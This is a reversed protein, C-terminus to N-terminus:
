FGLKSLGDLLLDRDVQRRLPVMGTIWGVAEKPGCKHRGVWSKSILKAVTEIDSRAESLRGLQSLVLSRWFLRRHPMRQEGVELWSMAREYEGKFYYLEAYDCRQYDLDHLMLARTQNYLDEGDDLRGLYVLATGTANLRHAEYVGISLATEIFREAADWNRRWIQCWAMAIHPNAHQSNIKLLREALELARERQPAMSLGPQTFFTGTNYSQILHIYAPEFTPDKKIAKELEGQLMGMSTMADSAAQHFRNKARLYHDYPSLEEAESLELRQVEAREIAPLVSSMCRDSFSAIQAFMGDGEFVERMSWCVLNTYVQTLQLSCLIQDSRGVVQCRLFYDKGQQKVEADNRPPPLSMVNVEPFHALRACCEEVLTELFVRQNGDDDRFSAFVAVIPIGRSRASVAAVGPRKRNPKTIEDFLDHTAQSVEFDDAKLARQLREFEQRAASIRDLDCLARMLSRSAPENFPDLKVVVSAKDAIAEAEDSAEADALDSEAAKLQSSHVWRRTEGVWEDFGRDIPDLGELFEKATDTVIQGNEDWLDFAINGPAIRVTDRSFDLAEPISKGITQRIEHLAQRLSAQSQSTERSSWFMEALTGRPMPKGNEFLLLALIGKAKKAKPMLVQHEAHEVSFPGMLRVFVNKACKNSM